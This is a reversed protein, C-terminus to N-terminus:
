YRVFVMQSEYNKHLYRNRYNRELSPALYPNCLEVFMLDHLVFSHKKAIKEFSFNMNNIGNKGRRSTGLVFIVPHFIKNEWNSKKVLRKLHSFMTDIREDFEEITKNCLDREDDSYNEANDTYPPSTFVADIIESEDQLYDMDCGDGDIIQYREGPSHFHKNIVERTKQNAKADIGFGIFKRQLHLSTIATTGRGQFMDLVLDDPNTYYDLSFLCQNPNMQHFKVETLGFRTAGKVKRLEDDQNVQNIVDKLESDENSFKMISQPLGFRDKVKFDLRPTTELYYNELKANYIATKWGSTEGSKLLKCVKIQIDDSEKSLKVLNVLDNAYETDSLLKKADPHLSAAIQKRMEYQRRSLGISKALDDITLKIGDSTYRNDGRKYLLNLEDMLRERHLIHNGFEIASLTNVMINEDLEILDSMRNDTDRIICPIKDRQLKQYGLLRHYGSILHYSSTINIPHILGCQKISEVLGNVKEESPNRFRYKIKIDKIPIEVVQM